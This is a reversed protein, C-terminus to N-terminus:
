LNNESPRSFNRRTELSDLRLTFIEDSEGSEKKSKIKLQNDELNISYLINKEQSLFQYSFDIREELKKDYSSFHLHGESVGTLYINGDHEFIHELKKENDLSYVKDGEKILVKDGEMKAFLTTNPVNVFNETLSIKETPFSPIMKNLNNKENKEQLEIHSMNVGKDNNSNCRECSILISETLILSAVITTQFGTKLKQKFSNTKQKQSIM